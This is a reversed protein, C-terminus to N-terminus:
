TLRFIEDMANRVDDPLSEPKPESRELARNLVSLLAEERENLAEGRLKRYALDHRKAAYQEGFDPLTMTESDGIHQHHAPMQRRTSFNFTPTLYRLAREHSRPRVVVQDFSTTQYANENHAMRLGSKNDLM